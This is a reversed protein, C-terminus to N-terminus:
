QSNTKVGLMRKIKLKFPRWYDVGIQTCTGQRVGHKPWPLKNVRCFNEMQRFILWLEFCGNVRRGRIGHSFRQEHLQFTALDEHIIELGYRTALMVHLKYDACSPLQTAYGGTVQFATRRYAMNLPGGIWNGRAPFYNLFESPSLNEHKFPASSVSSGTPTRMEFECRVVHAQPKEARQRLRAVYEPKLLDGVFLPKLWDAQGQAHAWNWHQVRGLERDPKVRRVPIGATKLEDCFQTIFEFGKNTFNDSLVVAFNRETQSVLSAGSEILKSGPNRVPMIIELWPQM